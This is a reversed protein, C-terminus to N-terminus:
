FCLFTIIICLLRIYNRGFCNEFTIVHTRKQSSGFLGDLKVHEPLFVWIIETLVREWDRWTAATIMIINAESFNHCVKNKFDLCKLLSKWLWKKTLEGNHHKQEDYLMKESTGRDKVFTQSITSILQSLSLRAHKM